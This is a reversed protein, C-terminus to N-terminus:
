ILNMIFSFALMVFLISDLRDLIGGHGPILNSYDKVDYYRKIASFVLDGLQGVCSLIAVILVLLVINGEYNFSAIYFMSSIFTGFTLGGFFGEWTKKPSVTPCLKHKGILLGTIYAFTDTFITLLLLSILYNLNTMRVVILYNFALGLFFVSGLIFLADEINYKKNDGYFVIPSLIFIIIITLAKVDLTFEVANFISSSLVLYLFSLASIGKILVPIKKSNDKLKLLEYLGILGILSVGVQFLTGGVAIIPIVIALVVIASIVRQKM